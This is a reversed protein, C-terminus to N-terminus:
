GNLTKEEYWGEQNGRAGTIHIEEWDELWYSAMAGLFGVVVLPTRQVQYGM